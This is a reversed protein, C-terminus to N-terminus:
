RRVEALRPNIQWRESPRGEREHTTAPRVWGADELVRLAARAEDPTSLGSWGRLYIERTSFEALLKGQLMREGLERAGHVEPSALCGYIRRAHAELYDCWAAAQRAHPLSVERETEASESDALEFLLALAPMLSRYKALHATMAPHLGGSGVKRELEPWWVYFLEQAADAFRFCRPADARLEALRDYMRAVHDAAAKDPPRDVLSWEGFDPWVLLQFRQFLGDNGLGDKVAEALYQRLKGPQMGGLISLRLTPAYLSGRTIRDTTYSREGGWTELFFQRDGERGPKELNALWGALEDRELVVGEPNETIIVHLAEVTPDNTVLRRLTPKTRTEDPRMPTPGSKKQAQIFQQEWARERLKQEREWAEYDALEAEFQERWRAEIRGLHRTFISLTPTKLRGPPAIVAAWLNPTVIWGTDVLKPQITARRNVCAALCAVACVAPLDVPVQMREAVDCVHARFAEPLMALNFPPVPLLDSGLAEPKPWACLSNDVVTQAKSMM